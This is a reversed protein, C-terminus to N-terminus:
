ADAIDLRREIRELRDSFRDLGPPLDACCTVPRSSRQWRTESLEGV